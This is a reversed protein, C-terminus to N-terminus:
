ASCGAPSLTVGSSGCGNSNAPKMEFDKAALVALEGEVAPPTTGVEVRNADARVLPSGESPDGDPVAEYEQAIVVTTPM